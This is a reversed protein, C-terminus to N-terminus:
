EFTFLLLALVKEQYGVLNELSGHRKIAVPILDVVQYFHEEYAYHGFHRVVRKPLGELDQDRLRFVTKSQGKLLESGRIRMVDFARFDAGSGFRAVAMRSLAMDVQRKFYLSQLGNRMSLLTEVDVFSFILSILERPVHYICSESCPPPDCSFPDIAQEEEEEEEKEEKKEERTRSTRRQKGASTREEDQVYDDDDKRRKQKLKEDHDSESAGDLAAYNM